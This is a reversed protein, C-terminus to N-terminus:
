ESYAKGRKAIKSTTKLRYFNEPPEVTRAPHQERVLPARLSVYILAIDGRCHQRIDYSRLIETIVGHELRARPSFLSLVQISDLPPYHQPLKTVNTCNTVRRYQARIPLINHLGCGCEHGGRWDGAPLVEGARASTIKITPGCVEWDYFRGADGDRTAELHQKKTCNTQFKSPSRNWCNQEFRFLPILRKRAWQDLCRPRRM